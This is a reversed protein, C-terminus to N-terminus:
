LIVIAVMRWGLGHNMFNNNNNNNKKTKIIQFECSEFFLLVNFSFPLHNMFYLVFDNMFEFYDIFNVMM